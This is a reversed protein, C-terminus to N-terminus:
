AVQQIQSKVKNLEMRLYKLEKSASDLIDGYPSFCQEIKSAVMLDIHLTDVLEKIYFSPEEIKKMYAVMAKAGYIHQYIDYFESPTLSIGKAVRKLNERIDKIGYFPMADYKRVFTLAEKVRHHNQKIMLPHFSIEEEIVYNRGLSFNTYSAVLQLVEELELGYYKKNMTRQYVM